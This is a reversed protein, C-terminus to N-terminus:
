VIVEGKVAQVTWDNGGVAVTTGILAQVATARAPTLLAVRKYKTFQNPASGIERSLVAHRAHIGATRKSRSIIASVPIDIATAPATGAFAVSATDVKCKVTFGADTDYKTNIFDTAAM